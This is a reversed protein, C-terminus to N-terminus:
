DEGAMPLIVWLLGERYISSVRQLRVQKPIPIVRHFRGHDIEMSLIRMPGSESTLPPDAADRPADPAPRTGQLVLRGPEVQVDVDERRVGALDVCVELRGGRQYVNISPSFQPESAFTSVAQYVLGSLVTAPNKGPEKRRGM